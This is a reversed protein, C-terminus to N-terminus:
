VMRWFGPEEFRKLRMLSHELDVTAPVTEEPDAWRWSPPANNCAREWVLLAKALREGYEAQLALDSSLAQWEDGFVHNEILEKDTLRRDFACNHDIVVLENAVPRWLLNSNGGLEGLTRDENDIWYDFVLLDRRLTQAVGKKMSYEFWAVLNEKCSGFAVGAGIERWDPKLEPLLEEPIDVLCFEPIPLGLERGLHGCLWENWQSRRSTNRGKVVYERGDVGRCFYAGCRGQTDKHLIEEIQIIAPDTM